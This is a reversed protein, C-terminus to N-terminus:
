AGARSGEKRVLINGPKLDRHLVNQAHAAQMRRWRGRWRLCIRWGWHETNRSSSNCRVVPSTTSCSFRDGRTRRTPTTASVAGIIAPHSLQRLVRVEQFVDKIGRNLDALHLTKVVVEEDLNQDHCLIATGFGGACFASRLTATCRSRRPLAATSAFLPRRSRSRPWKGVGNKWRGATCRDTRKAKSAADTAVNAVEAFMLRAEEFQGSGIELKGLGNLMPYNANNARRCVVCRRLLGKVAQREDEGRISVSDQPRVVGKQMGVQALASLVQDFLSRVEDIHGLHMGGLRQLEAQM